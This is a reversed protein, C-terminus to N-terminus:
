LDRVEFTAQVSLIRVEQTDYSQYSSITRDPPSFKQAQGSTSTTESKPNSARPYRLHAPTAGPEDPDSDHCTGDKICFQQLENWMCLPYM